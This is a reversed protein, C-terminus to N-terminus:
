NAEHDGRMLEDIEGQWRDCEELYYADDPIKDRRRDICERLTNIRDFHIM